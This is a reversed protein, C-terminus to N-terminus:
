KLWDEKIENLQKAIDNFSCTLDLSRVIIKNGSMNYSENIDINNKNTKAYLLMGSVEYDTNELSKNKVYSFIQYLNNSDIKDKNFRNKLLESDESYKADIILIKNKNKIKTKDMCTLMIDTQMKPLMERNNKIDNDNNDEIAWDIQSATSKIEDKFKSAYYNLIFKEYLKSMYKEEENATNLFLNKKNKPLDSILLGKIFLHCVSILIRYIQNNRNYQINWNIKHIEITEVENFFHLIKRLEKKRKLEEKREKIEKPIDFKLLECIATKIIRNLYFNISFNDYLCILRKKNFSMTKISDSIDIKGKLTSLAESCLIYEKAFGRKSLINVGRILIQSTLDAITEFKQTNNVNKIKNNLADFKFYYSLMYYINEIPIAPITEISM